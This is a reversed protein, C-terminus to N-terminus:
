NIEDVLERLDRILATPHQTGVKTRILKPAFEDHLNWKAWFHILVFNNAQVFASQKNTTGATVYVM